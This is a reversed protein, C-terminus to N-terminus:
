NAHNYSKFGFLNEYINRETVDSTREAAESTRNLSREIEKTVAMAARPGSGLKGNVVLSFQSEIQSLVLPNTAVASWTVSKCSEKAERCLTHGDM